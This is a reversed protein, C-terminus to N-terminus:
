FMICQLIGVNPCNTPTSTVIVTVAIMVTIFEPSVHYKLQTGQSTSSPSSRPSPTVETTQSPPTITPPIRM